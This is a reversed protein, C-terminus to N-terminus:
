LVPFGWRQITKVVRRKHENFMNLDPLEDIDFWKLETGEDCLTLPATDDAQLLFCIDFHLHLPESGTPRERLPVYGCNVDFLDDILVRINTLGTEEHVERLAAARVDPSGDCHGGPTIWVGKYAHHMLLVKTLDQNMVWPDAVIHAIWNSRDYPNDSMALFQRLQEVQLTELSDFPTYRALWEELSFDSIENKLAASTM